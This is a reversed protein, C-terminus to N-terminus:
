QVFYGDESSLISWDNPALTDLVKVLTKDDNESIDELLDTEFLDVIDAVLEDWSECIAIRIGHHYIFSDQNALVFVFIQPKDM